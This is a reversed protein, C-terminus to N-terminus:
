GNDASRRSGRDAERSHLNQEHIVLAVRALREPVVQGVASGLNRRGARDAFGQVLMSRNDGSTRILSM